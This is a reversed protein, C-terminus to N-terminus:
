PLLPLSCEFVTTQQRKLLYEWVLSDTADYIAQPTAQIQSHSAPLTLHLRFTQDTRPTYRYSYHLTDNEIRAANKQLVKVKLAPLRYNPVNVTCRTYGDYSKAFYPLARGDLDEIKLVKGPLLIRLSGEKVPRSIPITYELTANGEQDITVSHERFIGLEPDFRDGDVRVIKNLPIMLVGYDTRLETIRDTAGEIMGSLIMGEDTEIVTGNEDKQLLQTQAFNSFLCIIFAAFIIAYRQHIHNNTINMNKM